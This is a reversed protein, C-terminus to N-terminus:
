PLTVAGFNWARAGAAITLSGTRPADAPVDLEFVMGDSATVDVWAAPVARGAFTAKFGDAADLMPSATEAVVRVLERGGRSTRSTAVIANGLDAPVPQARDSIDAAPVDPEIGAIGPVLGGRPPLPPKRAGVMPSPPIVPAVMKSLEIRSLFLGGRGGTYSLYLWVHAIAKMNIPNGGVNFTSLPIRATSLISHYTPSAPMSVNPHLTTGVVERQRTYDSLKVYNSYRGATDQLIVMIDQSGPLNTQQTPASCRYKPAPEPGADALVCDPGVRMELTQYPSFDIPKGGDFVFRAYSNLTTTTAPAGWRIRAIATQPRAHEPPLGCNAVAGTTTGVRAACGDTGTPAFANLTLGQTAVRGFSVGRDTPVTGYGTPLKYNPNLLQLYNANETTGRVVSMAWYLGTLQQKTSVGFNDFLSTQGICGHLFGTPSGGSYNDPVHWETNYRNHNAGNVAFTWRIAQQTDSGFPRAIGRDFFRVGDIRPLDGDCMPLLVAHHVNPITTKDVLVDTPALSALARVGLTAPMVAKWPAQNKLRTAAVIADGGRSHGFMVVKTFDIRGKLALGVSAPQGGSADWTKLQEIHALILRGRMLVNAPDNVPDIFPIQNVGRNANISVVLYGLASLKSGIYDYGLHNPTVRYGAPCQGTTSYLKNDDIYFNGSLRGCTGHEGHLMVVLPLRQTAPANTPYWVRAWLETDYSPNIRADRKAPLKYEGSGAVFRGATVPDVAVPQAVAVVPLALSAALIGGALRPSRAVFMSLM